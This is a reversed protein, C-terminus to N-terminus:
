LEEREERGTMRIRHERLDLVGQVLVAQEDHAVLAVQPGLRLVADVAQEVRVRRALVAHTTTGSKEAQASRRRASLSVHTHECCPSALSTMFSNLPLTCRENREDEDKGGERGFSERPMRM